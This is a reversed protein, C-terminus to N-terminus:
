VRLDFIIFRDNEVICTFQERLHEHLNPYYDLWWFAPRRFVIFNAGSRRLWEFERVAASNDPPQGWYRGHREPPFECGFQDQDVLIFADGQPILEAIDSTTLDLRSQRQKQAYLLLTQQLVAALDDRGCKRLAPILESYCSVQYESYIMDYEWLTNLLEPSVDDAPFSGCDRLKGLAVLGTMTRICKECLGCNTKGSNKGQCVLINQLGVPWEAVLATKSFRSMDLAHHEIRLHASSYYSDLLPHSGWPHLHAADATSAIYAKSFGKSFFHAVSSLVAGHWKYTFFYGDDDLSLINTKVPIPYVGADKTVQSAAALRKRTQNSAEEATINPSNFYDLLIAGDISAPHDSPIYLKNWRLTALSDIGCSLFSAARTRFPRHTRFGHSSEIDPPAGMEPYWSRLTMLAANINSRLVSCLSGNIKVRREGAHWAPLIAAVLFGNTDAWFADHFQADAEVFLTIPEKDAEEWTIQAEARVFGSRSCLNIESIYM